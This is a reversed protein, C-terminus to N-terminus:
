NIKTKRRLDMERRERIMLTHKILVHNFTNDHHHFVNILNHADIYLAKATHYREQIAKQHGKTQYEYADRTDRTSTGSATGPPVGVERTSCRINQGRSNFLPHESRAGRIAPVTNHSGAM